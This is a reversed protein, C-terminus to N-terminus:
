RKIILRNDKQTISFKSLVNMGLLVTSGQVDPMIVVKINKFTMNAFSIQEVRALEGAVKGAATSMMIPYLGRLGAKLAIAKPVAVFTAGTDIMYRVPVNNINGDMWYHGQADPTITITKHKASYSVEAQKAGYNSFFLILLGFAFLWAIIFMLKGAPATSANAM